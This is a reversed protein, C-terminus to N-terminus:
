LILEVGFEYTDPPIDSFIVMFPMSGKPPMTSKKTNSFLKGLEQKSITKLDDSLVIVGPSVLKEEIISSKSNYLTGKIGTIDKSVDYSSIIKGEILFLRGLVTNEAYYYGKLDVIDFRSTLPPEKMNLIRTVTNVSGTMYVVGVVLAAFLISLIIVIGLRSQKKEKPVDTVVDNFFPPEQSADTHEQEFSPHEDEDPMTKHESIIPEDEPTTSLTIPPEPSPKNEVDFSFSDDAASSDKFIEFGGAGVAHSEEKPHPSKEEDFSIDMSWDAALKEDDPMEKKDTPQIDPKTDINFSITQEEKPPEPVPLPVDFTQPKVFFINKCKTCRVRVGKETVMSDDIRFKTQCVDCQVIM